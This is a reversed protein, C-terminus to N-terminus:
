QLKNEIDKIKFNKFRGSGSYMSVNTDRLEAIVNHEDVFETIEWLKYGEANGSTMTMTNSTTICFKRGILDIM